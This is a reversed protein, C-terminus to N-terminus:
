VHARGIQRNKTNGDDTARKRFYCDFSFFKGTSPYTDMVFPGTVILHTAIIIGYHPSSITVRGDDFCDSCELTVALTGDPRLLKILHDERNCTEMELAGGRCLGIAVQCADKFACKSEM